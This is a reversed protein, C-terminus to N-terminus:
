PTRALSARAASVTKTTEEMALLSHADLAADALKQWVRQKKAASDSDIKANAAKALELMEAATM